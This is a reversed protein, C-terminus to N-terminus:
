ALEKAFQKMCLVKRFAMKPTDIDISAAYPCMDKRGDNCTTMELTGQNGDQGDHVDENTTPTEKMILNFM